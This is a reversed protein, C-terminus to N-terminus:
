YLSERVEIIRDAAADEIIQEHGSPWTVRLEKVRTQKALGFRVLPESSSAYGVSTTAHNYLVTGDPLTARLQAGIGDRNSKTGVLRIALWHGADATVNRYLRAPENLASVVVDLRGDGDFDAFAAGRYFAAHQFSEGASASVDQFRGGGTNRFISCALPTPAGLLKELNPFHANAFFLDKWGDNDFDFAGMGWGTLQRTAGELGSALTHDEFFYPKGLNRFVLFSDNIMGTLVIDPLGDNDIDRFDAGMGAVPRGSEGLSVGAELGVERFKGGGENEFLFNRVSDNAVFVDMRGDHNYDGFVVGMGKGISNAIGSSRSIDTFTGDHNNRFLQNPRGPYADPHCYFRNAGLGCMPEHKPDWGVYNSVFLDLWGDNDADFWGASVSWMKGYTPDIGELGAQRTVDKFTGDGQNHYLINRDVGAVFIDPFGDNDYDAIAVAMSYGSGALGARDTVDTFHGKCDNQFLRNHFEPQSKDLSPSAAGNTFFIDMCGDRNFDIVGVGGPMLEIQHFGGSAGNNLTFKLGAKEAIDEFRIQAGLALSSLLLLSLLLATRRM